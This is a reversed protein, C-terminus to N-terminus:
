LTRFRARLSSMAKESMINARQDLYLVMNERDRPLVGDIKVMNTDHSGEIFIECDTLGDIFDRIERIIEREEAPVFEGAQVAEYLDANNFVTMTMILIRKPNITRFVEASAKANETGKGAGAIGALYFLTYSIGAADLRACQEIMDEVTQPKRMYKLAPAYGSEAGIAIDDVGLRAWEALEEDTRAKIDAIRAFGGITRVNPLKERILEMREVLDAQPMGFPNGGYMYVRNCYRAQEALEDLDELIEEIPSVRYEKTAVRCLSCFRCRNYSCGISVQLIASAMEYPLRHPTEVYHM